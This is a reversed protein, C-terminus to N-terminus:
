LKWKQGLIEVMEDAGNTGIQNLLELQDSHRVGSIVMEKFDNIFVSLLTPNDLITRAYSDLEDIAEEEDMNILEPNVTVYKNWELANFSIKQAKLINILSMHSLNIPLLFSTISGSSLSELTSSVGAVTLIKASQSVESIFENHSLVKFQIKKNKIINKMFEMSECGGVVLVYYDTSDLVNLARALLQLYPKQIQNSYPYKAGGIHVLIQNKKHIATNVSDMIGHIIHINDNNVPLRNRIEPFNIWFIEDALFHDKPIEKWFWALIDLYACPIGLNNAAIISFKNQCAIVYPNKIKQLFNEVEKIDREDVSVKKVNLGSLIEMCLESGAFIINSNKTRKLLRTIISFAHSSPGFGFPNSFIVITKKM